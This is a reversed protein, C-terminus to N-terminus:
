EDEGREDKMLRYFLNDKKIKDRMFLNLRAREEINHTAAKAKLETFYEVPTYVRFKEVGFLAAYEELLMTIGKEPTSARGDYLKMVFNNLESIIEERGVTRSLKIVSCIKDSKEEANAYFLRLIEEEEGDIYYKEGAYNRLFKLADFYGLKLNRGILKQSLAVTKGLEESPCIFKVSVEDDKPARYPRKSMTRVAIIEDYGRGALLAIPMNDYVGGDLYYKGNIKNLRFAPYYASAMIYNHLEGDPIDELFLDVPARDTLSYTVMALDMDSARVREESIYEKLFPILKDTPIGLNRIIKLVQKSWYAVTSRTLEGNFLREVEMDDFDTFLSATVHEWLNLMSDCNKDQAILAANIAGISTGAVGDFIYGNDYLAKVAGCHFAGKAGGGEM